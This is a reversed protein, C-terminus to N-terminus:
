GKKEPNEQKWANDCQRLFFFLWFLGIVMGMIMGNKADWQGPTTTALASGLTSMGMIFCGGLIGMMSCAMGMLARNM